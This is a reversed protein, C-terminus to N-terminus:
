QQSEPIVMPEGITDLYFFCLTEAMYPAVWLFGLNFSLICLAVYGLFSVYIYLMSKNRGKMLRMSERIGEMGSYEPHDIMLFEALVFRVTILVGAICGILTLLSGILSYVPFTAETVPMFMLIFSPLLCVFFIGDKVLFVPIFRDPRNFFAFLLDKIEPKENRAIKLHMYSFGVGAEFLVLFLLINAIVYIIVSSSKQSIIVSYNFPSSIILYAFVLIVMCIMPVGYKGHLACRARGKIIRSFNSM